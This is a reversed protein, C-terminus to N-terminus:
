DQVTLQNFFVTKFCGTSQGEESKAAARVAAINVTPAKIMAASHKASVPHYSVYVCSVGANLHSSKTILSDISSGTGFTIGALITLLRTATNSQRIPPLSVQQKQYHRANSLLGVSYQANDLELGLSAIIEIAAEFAELDNAAIFGDTDFVLTVKERETPEFVKERLQNFRASAKWHINRGSSYTQYERTGMLYIPDHIPSQPSVKGFLIQKLLPVSHLARLRPFVMIEASPASTTRRPFFGFLDGTILMPTGSIYVGRKQPTLQRHYRITQFWLIGSDEKIDAAEHNSQLQPNVALRIKTLVPLWKNNAIRVQLQVPEGPFVAEEDLQVDYSLRTPSFRSWLSLGSKLCILILAFVAFEIQGFILSILLFVPAILNLPFLFFLGHSYLDPNLDLRADNEM